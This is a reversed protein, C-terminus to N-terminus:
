RAGAAARAARRRAAEAADAADVAGALPAPAPATAPAAARAARLARRRAAEAEDAADVAGGQHAPSTPTSTAVPALTSAPAPAPTKVIRDPDPELADSIDMFRQWAEEYACEAAVLTPHGHPCGGRGCADPLVAALADGAAFAADRAADLTHQRVLEASPAPSPSLLFDLPDSM